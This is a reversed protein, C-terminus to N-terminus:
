RNEVGLLCRWTKKGATIVGDVVCGHDRQYAKVAATFKPGAIGDAAGVQTYGLTALRLQVPKVAPHCANCWRSLTVTKGLTEAGAVGDVKAGIAAQVQRIFAVPSADAQQAYAIYPLMGHKQWVRGPVGDEKSRLNHVATVQVGDGWRHTCEVAWGNGIYIGIHGPLWVAEGAQINSFDGSVERCIGIMGDAGIDPVGRSAYVAGGYVANIDGEWGWLLGKILGVCDFGFTDESADKIKKTREPKRNFPLNNCYRSKYAAKLPAGIGGLVYLSKYERAVQECVQALDKGSEIM